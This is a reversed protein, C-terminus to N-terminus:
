LADSGTFPLGLLECVAAPLAERCRRGAGEAVNFVFDFRGEDLNWPLREDAPVPVPTVGIRALAAAIAAITEPTDYEEFADDPLGHLPQVPRANHLIAVKM